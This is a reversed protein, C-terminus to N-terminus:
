AGRKRASVASLPTKTDLVAMTKHADALFLCSGDGKLLNRIQDADDLPVTFLEEATANPLGSLLYVGAHDVATAWQFAAEMDPPVERRLIALAKEPEDAQRLLEGGKGLLPRSQSLLVIRGHPALVRAACALAKAIEAFGHKEPDGALGGIVIDAAQNVRVRWRSDLLEEGQKSTDALGGLIHIIEEGSGEIVQIIFPAGLLWAVEGAEQRVPWPTAGPVANNLGAFLQRCTEEDSLAPYIAGVSGSYGLLPDYDRRTLVVLQDADVATRNLYIRRGKRTTALYSLKKRNGPEHVEVQVQPFAQMGLGGPSSSNAGPPYLLTIADKAIHSQVLYDILAELMKALCPLRDDVIVVVHDDPTLARRLAPFGLPKELSDRVAQAPDTIPLAPAQRRVGVLRSDAVDLELRERGYDIGIRM